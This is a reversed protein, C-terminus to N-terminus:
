QLEAIRQESKIIAEVMPRFAEDPEDKCIDYYLKGIANLNEQINRNEATIQSMLKSADTSNKLNQSVTRTANTLNASLKDFFSNPM